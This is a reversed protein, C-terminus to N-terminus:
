GTWSLLGEPDKQNIDVVFIKKRRRSDDGREGGDDQYRGRRDQDSNLYGLQRM